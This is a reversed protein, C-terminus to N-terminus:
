NIINPTKKITRKFIIIISITGMLIIPMLITSFEPIPETVQINVLAMATQPPSSSDFITIRLNITGNKSPIKWALSGNNAINNAIKTWHESTNATLYELTIRLPPTGGNTLWSINQNTLSPWNEREKPSQFIVSLQNIIPTPTPTPTQTPTPTPTQTPTPTPTQTPTPTPTQTPTPTPTSTPQGVTIPISYSDSFQSPGHLNTGTGSILITDFGDTLGTIQWVASRKGIAMEGLNHTISDVSFFGYQSSLSLSVDSIMDYEGPSGGNEIILSVTKIQETDIESPIQTQVDNELIDLFQDYAGNPSPHCPSCPNNSIGEAKPSFVIFLIVSLTVGLLIYSTKKLQM